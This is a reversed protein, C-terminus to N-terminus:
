VWMFTLSGHRVRYVRIRIRQVRRAAYAYAIPLRYTNYSVRYSDIVVRDAAASRLRSADARSPSGGLSRVPARPHVSTGSRRM